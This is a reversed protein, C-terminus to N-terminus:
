RGKSTGNVSIRRGNQGRCEDRCFWETTGEDDMGLTLAAQQRCFCRWWRHLASRNGRCCLIIGGARDYKRWQRFMACYIQITYLVFIINYVVGNKGMTNWFFSARRDCCRDPYGEFTIPCARGGQALENEKRRRRRSGKEGEQQTHIVSFWPDLFELLFGM